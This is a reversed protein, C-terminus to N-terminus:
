AQNKEKFDRAEDTYGGGIHECYALPHVWSRYGMKKVDKTYRVDENVPYEYVFKLQRFIDQHILRCGCGLLSVIYPETRGFDYEGTVRASELGIVAPNAKSFYWGSVDKKHTDFLMDLTDPKVVIDCDVFFVFEYGEKEAKSLCTNRLSAVKFLQLEDYIMIPFSTHRVFSTEDIKTTKYEVGMRKSIEQVKADEEECSIFIDCGLAKAAQISAELTDSKVDGALICFLTKNM